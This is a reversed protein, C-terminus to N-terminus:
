EQRRIAAKLENVFKRTANTGVIKLEVRRNRAYAIPTESNDIPQDPGYGVASIRHEELGYAILTDRVEQARERSLKINRRYSGAKDTHGEVILTAWQNQYKALVQAMSQIIEKSRGILEASGSAFRVGANMLNVRLPKKKKRAVTQVTTKPPAIKKIPKQPPPPPNGLPWGFELLFQLTTIKRNEINLDTNYQLGFRLLHTALGKSNRLPLDYMARLGILAAFSKDDSNTGIDSFSVDQGFLLYASPGLSLSETLRYRLGLDAVFARTLVDIGNSSMKDSRWGFGVDTILSEFYHSWVGKFGIEFGSNEIEPAIVSTKNITGIELGMLLWNPRQPFDYALSSIPFQLTLFTLCALLTIRM